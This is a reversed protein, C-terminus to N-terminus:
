DTNLRVPELPSDLVDTLSASAVEEVTSCVPLEMDQPVDLEVPPAPTLTWTASVDFTECLDSVTRTVTAVGGECLAPAADADISVQPDCGGTISAGAAATTDDIWQQYAADVAAQDAYDCSDAEANMPPTGVAIADPATLTWTASVDFTECLDSVTWTM